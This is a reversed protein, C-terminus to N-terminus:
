KKRLVYKRELVLVKLNLKKLTTEPIKEALDEYEETVAIAYEADPDNMLMLLKGLSALFNLIKNKGYNEITKVLLRKGEKEAVIDIEDEESGVYLIKYGEESLASAIAKQEYTVEEVPGQLLKVVTNPSVVVIGSPQTFLIKFQIPQGLVSILIIDGEVVPYDILRRKVYSVFGADPSIEYLTPALKVVKAEKAEAKRVVVNDGINVGANKRILGDMRIINLEQDEPYSPWAIAATKRRGEIEVIDGPRVGLKKMIDIDFRAKGTGVDKQKAEMVKLTIEFERGM